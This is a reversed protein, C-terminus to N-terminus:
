AKIDEKEEGSTFSFMKETLLNNCYSWEAM